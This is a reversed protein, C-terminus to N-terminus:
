LHQALVQKVFPVTLRNRTAALSALDFRDLWSLQASLSRPLHRFLYSAVDAPLEIGRSDARKILLLQKEDDSLSQVALSLGWSLRSRLDALEIPLLSPASRDAFVLAKDSARRRNFLEFLGKEWHSDGAVESVDDICLFDIDALDQLMSADFQNAMKLPLYFGSRGNGVTEKVATQLLHSKGGEPAGFLFLLQEASDACQGAQVMAQLASLAQENSGPYFQEFAAPEDLQLHLPLQQIM